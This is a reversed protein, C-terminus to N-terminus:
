QIASAAGNGLRNDSRASGALAPPSATTAMMEIDRIGSRRRYVWLSKEDRSVLPQFGLRIMFSKGKETGARAYFDAGTDRGLLDIANGTARVAMKPMCVAWVYIASQTEGRRSLCAPSPSAISLSGDVLSRVGRDNLFMGAFCGALGNSDRIALISGSYRHVREFASYTGRLNPIHRVMMAALFPLDADVAQAVSHRSSPPLQDLDSCKSAAYFSGEGDVAM